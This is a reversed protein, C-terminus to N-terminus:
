RYEKVEETLFLHKKLGHYYNGKVARFELITYDPDTPGLPYYVEDGAKWFAKKLEEEGHVIMEGIFMVGHFGVADLFYISAKPNKEWQGVRISSTNTSFWFTDMGENKLRFMTKANPYGEEDVSCCIADRSSEVLKIICDAVEREM